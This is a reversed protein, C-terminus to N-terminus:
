ILFHVQDFHNSANYYSDIYTNCTGQANNMEEIFEGKFEFSFISMVKKDQQLKYFLEPETEKLLDALVKYDLYQIGENGQNIKNSLKSEYYIAMAKELSINNEEAIYSILREDLSEQYVQELVKDDM